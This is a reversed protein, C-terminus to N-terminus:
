AASGVLELSTVTAKRKPQKSKRAKAAARRLRRITLVEEIAAERARDNGIFYFSPNLRYKGQSYRFLLEPGDKEYSPRCLVSLANAVTKEKCGLERAIDERDGIDAYIWTNGIRTARAVLYNLVDSQNKTLMRLVQDHPFVKMFKIGTSYRTGSM